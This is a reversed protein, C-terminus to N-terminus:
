RKIKTGVPVGLANAAGQTVVKGFTAVENYANSIATQRKQEALEAARQQAELESYYQNVLTSIANQEYTKAFQDEAQQTSMRKLENEALANAVNLDKTLGSQMIKNAIDDKMQQEQVNIANVAKQMSTDQQVRMKESTGSVPADKLGRALGSAALNENSNMAAVRADAYTNTRQARAAKQQKLKENDLQMVQGEYEKQYADTINKGIKNFNETYDTPKYEQVKQKYSNILDDLAM